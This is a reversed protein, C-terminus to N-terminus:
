IWFPPTVRPRPHDGSPDRVTLRSSGAPVSDFAFRGHEDSTAHLPEPRGETTLEVTRVGGPVLWGDLRTRREDRDLRVHLRLDPAEYELLRTGTDEQAPSTAHRVGTLAGDAAVLTLLELELDEAAIAALVGDVLDAPPPDVEHWVRAVARLLAADDAPTPADTM